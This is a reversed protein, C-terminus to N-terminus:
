IRAAMRGPLPAQSVRNRGERKAVYLARDAAMLLAEPDSPESLGGPIATAVGISATVVPLPAGAGGHPLGLAEIEARVREGLRAVDVAGTGPLLLVFEEGGYRAAMEGARRVADRLPGAVGRLCDDGALHGHRDNFSKFADVDILMLSLPRGRGACGHWEAALAEDFARRNSLGTLGDQRAAEALRMELRKRETVDRSVSIVGDPRGTAVDRTVRLTSELWISHGDAHRARYTVVVEETQGSRLRAIERLVAPRDEAPMDALAETGILAEPSCGLLRWSVPSVYRRRGALDIRAVMDGSNEALARFRAESERLTEEAQRRRRLELRLAVALAAM